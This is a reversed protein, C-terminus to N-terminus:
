YRYSLQGAPLSSLRVSKGPAVTGVERGNVLVTLTQSFNNCLLGGEIYAGPKTHHTEAKPEAVPAPESARESLDPIVSQRREPEAQGLPQGSCFATIEAGTIDVRQKKAAKSVREFCKGATEQEYGYPRTDYPYYTEPGFVSHLFRAVGSRHGRYHDGYGYRSDFRYDSRYYGTGVNSLIGDIMDLNRNTVAELASGRYGDYYRRSQASAPVATVLALLIALAFLLSKKM